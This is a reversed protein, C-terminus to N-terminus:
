YYRKGILNYIEESSKFLEGNKLIQYPYCNHNWLSLTHELIQEFTDAEVEFRDGQYDYLLTYM